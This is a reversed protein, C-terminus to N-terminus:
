FRYIVQLDTMLKKEWGSSHFPIDILRETQCIEIVMSKQIAKGLM